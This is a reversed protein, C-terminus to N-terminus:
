ALQKLKESFSDPKIGTSYGFASQAQPSISNTASALNDLVTKDNIALSILDAPKTLGIQGLLSKAFQMGADKKEAENGPAAM